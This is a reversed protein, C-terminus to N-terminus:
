CLFVAGPPHTSKSKQEQYFFIMSECKRPKSNCDKLFSPSKMDLFPFTKSKGKVVVLKNKEGTKKLRALLRSESGEREESNKIKTEPLRVESCLIDRQERERKREVCM